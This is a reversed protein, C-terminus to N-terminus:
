CFKLVQKCYEEHYLIPSDNVCLEQGPACDIGNVNRWIYAFINILLAASNESLYDLSITM